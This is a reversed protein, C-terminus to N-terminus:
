VGNSHDLYGALIDSPPGEATIGGSEIVVVRDCGAVTTLRHAVIIITMESKLAMLARLLESETEVDLASTAEDLFLYRPSRYLARALAVRQRQGGSLQLGDEGVPTDLGRPLSRVWQGIGAQEIALELAVPDIGAGEPSLAINRGISANILHVDQAVFGCQAQWQSLCSALPLGGWRIDGESPELFGLMLNLLTSKGGGSPGIIGLCEGAGVQLSVKKLGWERETPHRFAVNSLKLSRAIASSEAAASNSTVAQGGECAVLDRHIAEASAAGFRFTNFATLVRGASPVLRMAGAAVLGVVPVIAGMSEGQWLLVSVLAVVGGVMVLELWFRPLEVLYAHLAAARAGSTTPAKFADVFERQRGALRIERVNGLGQGAQELRLAEAQHREQGWRAVRSKSVKLVLGMLLLMTLGVILAAVPEVYLILGCLGLFVFAETLLSLFPSVVGLAFMQSSHMLNRLLGSTGRDLHFPYARQLYNSFLRISVDAQLGNSFRSQLYLLWSFFLAKVLYALFLLGLLAGIAGGMDLWNYWGLYTLSGGETGRIASVIEAMVPVFMGVTVLELVTGVWMLPILSLVTSRQAPTLISWAHRLVLAVSLGNIGQSSQKGLAYEGSTPIADLSNKVSRTERSM